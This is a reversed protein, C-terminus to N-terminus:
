HAYIDATNLPKVLGYEIVLPTKNLLTHNGGLERVSEVAVNRIIFASPGEKDVM